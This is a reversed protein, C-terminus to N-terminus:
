HFFMHQRKVVPSHEGNFFRQSAVSEIERIRTEFIELTQIDSVCAENLGATVASREVLCQVPMSGVYGLIRLIGTKQDLVAREGFQLRM